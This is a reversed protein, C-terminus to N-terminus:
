ELAFSGYEIPGVPVYTAIVVGTGSTTSEALRFGSPIAGEGFLRKGTGLVVPFVLLRFEDIVGRPLLSQILNGSGHVQLEPGETRKLEAVATPVDGRILTSNQWDLTSLTRSAVHKTASNFVAAGEEESAHPWHAAFIEWTKRGLLLDFPAGLWESMREGMHDDWYNVTWGGHAFGGSPDEDPGGPGQMVGDLTLFTSVALKRM